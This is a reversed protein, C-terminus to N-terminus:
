GCVHLKSTLVSLLSPNWSIRSFSQWVSGYRLSFLRGSRRSEILCSVIDHIEAQFVFYLWRRRVCCLGFAPFWDQSRYCDASQWYEMCLIKRSVSQTAAFAPIGTMSCLFRIRGLCTQDVFIRNRDVFFPITQFIMKWSFSDGTSLVFWLFTRNQIRIDVACSIDNALHIWICKISNGVEGVRVFRNNSNGSFCEAMRFVLFFVGSWLSFTTHVLPQMM